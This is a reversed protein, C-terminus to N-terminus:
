ILTCSESIDAEYSVSIHKNAQNKMWKITQRCINVLIAAFRSWHKWEFTMETSRLHNSVLSLIFRLIIYSMFIILLAIYMLIFYSILPSSQFMSGILGLRLIWYEFFLLSLSQFIILIFVGQFLSTCINTFIYICVVCLCICHIPFSYLSIMCTSPIHQQTRAFNYYGFDSLSFVLSRQKNNELKNEHTKIRFM